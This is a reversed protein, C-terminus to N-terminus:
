SANVLLAPYCSQILSGPGYYSLVTGYFSYLSIGASKKNNQTIEIVPIGKSAFSSMCSNYPITANGEKCTQNAIYVVEPEKGINKISSNLVSLCHLEESSPSSSNVAIVIKSSHEVASQFSAFTASSNAYVLAVYSIIIYFFLLIAVVSVFRRWNARTRRNIILKHKKALYSRTFALLALIVASIIIAPITGLLPMLLVALSYPLHLGSALAVAFPMGFAKAIDQIGFSKVPYVELKKSINDLQLEISTINSIGGKSVLSALYLQDNTLNALKTSSPNALDAELAKVTNNNSLKVVSWYIANASESAKEISNLMASINSAEQSINETLFNEKLQAFDQEITSLEASITSNNVEKLVNSAYAMVSSLNALTTNIANELEGEKVSKVKPLVYSMETSNAFNALGMISSNTLPLSNMFSIENQMSSLTVSNFAPTPCEGFYSCYWPSENYRCDILMKSTINSPPYFLRNLYFTRTISSINSFAKDILPLREQINAESIGNLSSYFESYSNNLKTYNNEFAIIEGVFFSPSPANDLAYSCDAEAMCSRCETSNCSLGSNMGVFQVCDSLAGEGSKQYSQMQSYLLSFNIKSFATSITYNRIISYIKSTNTVLSNTSQSIVFYPKSGNYLVVYQEGSVNLYVPTLSSELSSPVNYYSLLSSIQLTSYAHAYGLIVIGLVAFALPLKM